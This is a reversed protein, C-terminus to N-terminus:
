DLLLVAKGALTRDLLAEIPDAADKWSTELAIQSDLRDHAVLEALTRLDETGGGHRALDTFILFAELRAGSAHGYLASVDFTTPERSSNGFSVIAGGPAIRALGAALSAGGVSELVLDFPPGDPEFGVVIEDAGLETLGEGRQPNGVVATVHAGARSALQVAFRGVGGSAGTVLVRKGLALGGRALTRYATLGAVPLAAAAAFAVGDPLEALTEAPVSVRQAWAGSGVLGVVRAGAPPGSGDAAPQAVVGALDWGPVFGDEQGALRRVEGRNLSVARVEVLVEGPAPSPEEVEGIAIHGRASQNVVLALM